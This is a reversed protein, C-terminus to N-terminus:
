GDFLAINAAATQKDIVVEAECYETYEDPPTPDDACNCGAIISTYFLGIKARIAQADDTVGIVMATFPKGSYYSGHEIGQQLPLEAPDLQEIEAKLVAKFDDTGLAAHSQPLQPM